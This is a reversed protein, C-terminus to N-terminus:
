NEKLGINLIATTVALSDNTLGLRDRLLFTGFNKLAVQREDKAERTYYLDDLLVALFIAGKPTSFIERGIERIKAMQDAPALEKFWVDAHTM